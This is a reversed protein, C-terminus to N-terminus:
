WLEYKNKYLNLSPKLKFRVWIMQLKKLDICDVGLTTHDVREASHWSDVNNTGLHLWKWRESKNHRQIHHELM